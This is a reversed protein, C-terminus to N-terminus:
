KKIAIKQQVFQLMKRRMDAATMTSDAYESVCSCACESRSFREETM